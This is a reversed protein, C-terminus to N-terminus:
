KKAKGPPRGVRKTGSEDPIPPKPEEPRGRLIERLEDRCEECLDFEEHTNLSKLTEVARKFHKECVRM